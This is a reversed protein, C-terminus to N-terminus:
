RSGHSRLYTADGVEITRSCVWNEMLRWACIQLIHAEKAIGDESQQTSNGLQIGNM